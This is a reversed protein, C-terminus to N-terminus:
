YKFRVHFVFALHTGTGQKLIKFIFLINYPCNLFISIDLQCYWVLKSIGIWGFQM